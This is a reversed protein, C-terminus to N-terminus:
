GARIGSREVVMRRAAELVRSIAQRRYDWIPNQDPPLITMTANAEFLLVRGDPSLAFDVGAYDLGLCDRIRELAAVARAGLVDPMAELFRREEGRLVEERSMESTFYHVKWSRSAALHVPYLKGDITMVRYKRSLGDRGRADLYQMVFLEEGPLRLAAGALDDATDVKEFHQGTHFGSARLLLPYSFGSKAAAEGDDSTLVSKPMTEVRPAIVDELAALRQAIQQRGTPVVIGPPNIVPAPSRAAIIQAAALGTGCLDADGIANFVVDHDPLPTQPYFYEAYVASIEFMRDDLLLQTPINGSKVSVILLVRPARGRGRYPREVIGRGAFAQRWHPEAQEDRGLASLARALVRHADAHSPDVALASECLARAEEAKGDDILLNALNALAAPNGPHQEAAQRYATVAASRHGSALALAALNTLAGFHAADRRLLAVYTDKAAADDGLLSQLRAKEFLMEISAPDSALSDEVWALAAELQAVRPSTL